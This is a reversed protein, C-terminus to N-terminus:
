EKKRRRWLMFLFLTALLGITIMLFVLNQIPNSSPAVATVMLPPTTAQELAPAKTEIVVVPMSVAIQEGNTNLGVVQLTHEGLPLDFGVPFTVYFNGNADARGLGLLQPDSFLYVAFESDPFMGQGEAQVSDNRVMQIRGLSDVPIAEGGSQAEVSLLGGDTTVVQSITERVVIIRSSQNVGNVLVSTPIEAVRKESDPGPVLSLATEPPLTASPGLGGSPSPTPTATSSPSPSLDIVRPQLNPSLVQTPSTRQLEAPREATGPQPGVTPTPTPTVVRETPRTPAIPTAAPPAITSGVVTTSSAGQGVSNTALIKISYSTGAILNTIRLPSTTQAPSFSVFTVGNDLSYMYNTISAGGDSAPATFTISLEQNGPTISGITPAGPKALYTIATKTSATGEGVVNAARIKVDYATGGVLGTVLLPSTTQAPSFAVYTQGDDLSYLYNTIPAGGTSAPATFAISIGEDTATISNITPVGPRGILTVTTQSSSVATYSSDAAKTATVLCTGSTSASLNGGSITCGTATGNAVTYSVSGSGSGGTVTLALPTGQTGQTSSVVLEAQANKISFIMSSTATGSSSGTATITVTATSTVTPTGSVVGTSTNLTLGTPLAGSSFTVTGNLGSATLTSTSTIAVGPTGTVTQSSPSVSTAINPASADNPAVAGFPVGSRTVSGREDDVILVPSMATDGINFVSFGLKYDGTTDVQYTAIQWGTSGYDGTSYIGTPPVTFGLLAWRKASNNVTITPNGSVPVLTTLSGDNYPAYDTSTYSWAMRYTVGAELTVTRFTFASNTPSGSFAARVATVETSTLGLTSQLVTSFTNNAQPQLRGSKAGNTTYVWNNQSNNNIQIQTGEATLGGTTDWGTTGANFDTGPILLADLSAKASVAPMLVLSSALLSIALLLANFSKSKRSTSTKM